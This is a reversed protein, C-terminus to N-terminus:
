PVRAPYENTENIWWYHTDDQEARAQFSQRTASILKYNLTSTTRPLDLKLDRNVIATTSLNAYTEYEVRYIWAAAQVLKLNAWAEKEQAREKFKFLQPIAISAIIGVIVTVIIVELLTFGRGCKKSNRM